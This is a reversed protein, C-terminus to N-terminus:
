EYHLAVMPDVKAARRVPLWASLVVVSGVVIQAIAYTRPDDPKLGFFQDRVFSNLQM